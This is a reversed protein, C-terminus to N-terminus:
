TQTTPISTVAPLNPAHDFLDIWVDGPSWYEFGPHEEPSLINEGPDFPRQRPLVDVVDQDYVTLTTHALGGHEFM